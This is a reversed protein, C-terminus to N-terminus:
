MNGPMEETNTEANFQSVYSFSKKDHFVMTRRIQCIGRRITTKYPQWINEINSKDCM